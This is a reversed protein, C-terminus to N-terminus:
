KIIFIKGNKQTYNNTTNVDKNNSTIRNTSTTGSILLQM